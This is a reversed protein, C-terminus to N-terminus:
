DLYPNPADGDMLMEMFTGNTLTGSRKEQILEIAECGTMGTLKKLALGTALSSRNIGQSCTVLVNKNNRIAHVITTLAAEARKYISSYFPSGKPVMMDENPFYKLQAGVHTKELPPCEAATYIVVDIGLIKLNHPIEKYAAQWLSGGQPHKYILDM